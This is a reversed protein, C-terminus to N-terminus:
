IRTIELDEGADFREALEEEYLKRDSRSAKRVSIFKSTQKGTPIFPRGRIATVICPAAAFNQIRGSVIGECLSIPKASRMGIQEVPFIGSVLENLLLLHPALEPM